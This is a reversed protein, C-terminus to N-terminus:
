GQQGADCGRFHVYGGSSQSIELANSSIESFALDLKNYLGLLFGYLYDGNVNTFHMLIGCNQIDM